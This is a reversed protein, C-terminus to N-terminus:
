EAGACWGNATPGVAEYPFCVSTSRRRSVRKMWKLMPLISDMPQVNLRGAVRHSKGSCCHTWRNARRVGPVESGVAKKPNEHSRFQVVYGMVHHMM